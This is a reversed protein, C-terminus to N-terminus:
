PNEEEETGEVEQGPVSQETGEKSRRSKEEELRGKEYTLQDIINYLNYISSNIKKNYESVVDELYESSTTIKKNDSLAAILNQAETITDTLLQIKEDLEEDTLFRYKSKYEMIYLLFIVCLKKSRQTM